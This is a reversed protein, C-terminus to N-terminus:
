RFLKDARGFILIMPNQLLLKTLLVKVRQGKREPRQCRPRVGIDCLGLGNAIEEIKFDITYYGNHELATSYIM